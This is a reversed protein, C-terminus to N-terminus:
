INGLIFVTGEREVLVVQKVHKHMIILFYICM